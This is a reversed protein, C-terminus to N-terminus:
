YDHMLRLKYNSFESLEEIYIIEDKTREHIINSIDLNSYNRRKYESEIKKIRLKEDTFVYLTNKHQMLINAIKQAIVGEWIFVDYNNINILEFGKHPKRELKDYNPLSLNYSKSKESNIKKFIRLIEAIDYREFVNKGRLLEPLLWRDLSIVHASIKNSLLLERKLVNAVTTKGSKSLGSIFINKEQTFIPLYNYIIKSLSIYGSTIFNVAHNITPLTFEPQFSYKADMGGYGTEVTISSLGLKKAAGIDATSDGVVWSHKIDINFDDIAKLFLDINPKRCNCIIKYKAIENEFGADPHHPCYYIRDLYAGSRGILTELKAHIQNLTDITCNGRAIVPQNTVLITKWESDNLIKISEGVSDYLILQDPDTIYNINEHNLTGDRDLFVAKQKKEICARGVIGSRLAKISKDLRAPTGIDKIYEPSIYGALKEGNSILIPFFDKVFDGESILENYKYIKNKEVLYLAANVLNRYWNNKNHPYPHFNIIYGEENIEVLDSDFPHDNPHLFLTAAADLCKEHHHEFRLLDINFLTDGYVVLFVNNILNLIKLTAGATGLPSGDDIIKINLNKFKEDKCFEEIYIANYNVLIIINLYNYKELILLQRELLPVGDVDILPKPLDGLRERLRTGKGGALIVAQKM